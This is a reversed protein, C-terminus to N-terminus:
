RGLEVYHGKFGSSELKEADHRGYAILASPGGANFKARKGQVDYFHLRGEFFLVGSARRWVCEHFMATETRAFTLAIGGGPHKSLRELWVGTAPGYPPNCWVRGSWDQRLGDEAPTFMLRATRWPMGEPVCPDLDFPGLKEIIEPPTLWDDTAGRYARQHGGIGKAM